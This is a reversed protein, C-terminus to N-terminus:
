NSLSAYLNNELKEWHIQENLKFEIMLKSLKLWITTHFVLIFIVRSFSAM